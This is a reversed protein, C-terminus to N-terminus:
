DDNLITGTGRNKTFLANSSLGSLDLYFTENAEQKSDGKVEITITKTTEGPAFTLTGTKAVYDGDSTTATGDVTRFSMTVAQDYAASLTVTFTFQTTQGKKGEKKSVDGISIRPEDNVITGVGQSDAITANTAGSLNLAFNENPEAQRDGKVLVTITGTTQGAPITLTGSAAEYDAGAAATGNATAYAVTVSQASAASLTVTFVATRTSTNGETITVDGITISPPPPTWIGDNLLLRLNGHDGSAGATGVTLDVRGDGNFDAVAMSYPSGWSPRAAVSVPPQFSGNGNGLRVTVSPLPNPYAAEATVIDAKGDGNFDGTTLVGPHPNSDLNEGAQFTGNGNNLWTYVGTTSGQHLSALDPRGDANFDAVAVGAPDADQDVYQPPTFSGTGTGYFIPIRYGAAVLDMNGDGNFDAVAVSNGGESRTFSLSFGGNGDNLYVAVFSGYLDSDNGPAPEIFTGTIALDARGDNNFDAVAVDTARETGSVTMSPLAIAYQGQFTGDGNGLLISLDGEAYEYISPIGNATALDLIGDGNFDGSAVALPEHFTGGATCSQNPGFTGDANALRVDVAHDYTDAVAVDPRGDRNFDAAVMDFPSDGTLYDGAVTFSLLCRDELPEIALRRRRPPRSVPRRRSTSILSKHMDQFWM